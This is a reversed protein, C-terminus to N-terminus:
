NQVPKPKGRQINRQQNALQTEMIRIHRATYNGYLQHTRLACARKTKRPKLLNDELM